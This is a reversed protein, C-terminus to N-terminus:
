SLDLFGFAVIAAVSAVGALLLVRLRLRVGWVMAAFVLVAPTFALVGGVDSGWVPVGLVVLVALLIAVAGLRGRRGPIRSAVFAALLCAASALQGYSYNS